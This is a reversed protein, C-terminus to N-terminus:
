PTNVNGPPPLLLQPLSSNLSPTPRVASPGQPATSAPGSATPLLHARGATVSAVQINDPPYWLCRTYPAGSLWGHPPAPMLLLPVSPSHHQCTPVRPGGSPRRQVRPWGAWLTPVSLETRLGLWAPWTTAPPPPVLGPGSSVRCPPTQSGEPAIGVGAMAERQGFASLTAGSTCSIHERALVFCHTGM